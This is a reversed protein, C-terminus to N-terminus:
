AKEAKLCTSCLGFLEVVKRDIRSLFKGKISSLAATVAPNDLERVANCGTCVAFLSVHDAGEHAHGHKHHCAVYANLSEIRHALGETTLKDLARYVTPPSKIGSTRLQELVDYASLPQPASELVSLVKQCQPSLAHSM